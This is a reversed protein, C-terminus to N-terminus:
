KKLKQCKFCYYISGGLYNEKKLIDGCVPCPGNMNNKSMITKYSGSVGYIDKETDRGNKSIMDLVTTKLSSYLNSIEESTLNKIKTKPNICANFLIDQTVGNGIGPIRQETAIFAKASLKKTNDNVLSLFYEESFEDLLPSVGKLELNYYKNDSKGMCLEICGYMSVSVAIFSGDDFEILLQHKEPLTDEDKHYRINTGDRFLLTYEEILIEVYFCRPVINSIKKGIVKRSNEEMGENFFTFKHESFGYLFRKITKGVIVKDLERAIVTAEPIEIM